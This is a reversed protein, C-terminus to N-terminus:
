RVTACSRGILGRGQHPVAARGVPERCVGCEQTVTRGM